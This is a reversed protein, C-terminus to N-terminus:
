GADPDYKRVVERSTHNVYPRGGRGQAERERKVEAGLLAKTQRAKAVQEAARGLEPIAHEAAANVIDASLGKDAIMDPLQDLLVGRVEPDADAIARRVTGAVQGDESNDIARQVKRLEREARLEGATDLKVSQAARVNAHHQEALEVRGTLIEDARDLYPAAERAFRGHLDDWGNQTYKDKSAEAATLFRKHGSGVADVINRVTQAPTDGPQPNIGKPPLPDSPAGGGGYQTDSIIGM